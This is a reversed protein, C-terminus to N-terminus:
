EHEEERHAPEANPAPTATADRIEPHRIMGGLHATYGTVGFVYM